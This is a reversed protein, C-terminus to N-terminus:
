QRAADCANESYKISVAHYATTKKRSTSPTTTASAEEGSRIRVVLWVVALVLLAGLMYEQM